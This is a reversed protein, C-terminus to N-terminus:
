VLLAFMIGGHQCVCAKWQLRGVVRPTCISETDQPRLSRRGPRLYEGAEVLVTLGEQLSGAFAYAKALMILSAPVVTELGTARLFVLVDKIKNHRAGCAGVRRYM